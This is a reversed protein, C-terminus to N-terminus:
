ESGFLSILNSNLSSLTVCLNFVPFLRCFAKEPSLHYDKGFDFILAIIRINSFFITM